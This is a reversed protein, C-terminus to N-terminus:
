RIDRIAIRGLATSHIGLTRRAIEVLLVNSLILGGAAAIAAGAVGMTPILVISLVINVAAGLTIGAAARRQNGTMILLIGVSGAAANALQALALISLASDASGFEPGFAISLIERGFAVFALALPLSVLLLARASVTVLRQLREVDGVAWLRAATPALASNVAMLPFAILLAGRQAVAYLGAGEASDFAGLIVVGTQSNLISAASLFALSLAGLIWARTQYVPRARRVSKPTRSRLLLASLAFAAALSLGHLSVVVPADLTLPSTAFVVGVLALFVLPRFFLEPSQGIIVHHLGMLAAQIVRGGALFPLAALGALLALLTPSLGGSATLWAVVAAVSALALSIGITVQQSRRMLGRALGESGQSLFVAVDRVVLRDFGLIAPIGLLTVTAVALAYIGFDAVGMIRALLISTILTAATNFIILGFSGSAARILSRLSGHSGSAGYEAELPEEATVM